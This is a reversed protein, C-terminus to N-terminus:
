YLSMIPFHSPELKFVAQLLRSVHHLLSALFIQFKFDSLYERLNLNYSDIIWVRRAEKAGLVNSLM